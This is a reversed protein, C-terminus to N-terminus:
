PTKLYSKTVFKLNNTVQELTTFNIDDNTTILIILSYGSQIADIGNFKFTMSNEYTIKNVLLENKENKLNTLIYPSLIPPVGDYKNWTKSNIVDLKIYPVDIYLYNFQNLKYSNDFNITIEITTNFRGPTSTSGNLNITCLTYIPDKYYSSHSLARFNQLDPAILKLNKVYVDNNKIYMASTQENIGGLFVANNQTDFNAVTSTKDNNKFMINNTGAPTVTFNGNVDTDMKICKNENNASCVTLEKDASSKITLGSIATTKSILDMNPISSGFVYNFIKNNPANTNAINYVGDNFSFYRNLNNHFNNLNNDFGTSSETLKKTLINSTNSTYLDLQILKSDTKSTNTNLDYLKSINSTSVDFNYNIDSVTKELNIKAQKKYEIYDFIIYSVVAVFAFIVVIIIAYLSTTVISM